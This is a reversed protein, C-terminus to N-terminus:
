IANFVVTLFLNTLLLVFLTIMIASVSKNITNITNNNGSFGIYISITFIILGNLISKLLHVIVIKISLFSSVQNLFDSIMVGASLKTLILTTLLSIVSFYISLVPIILIGALIKSTGLYVIPNIGLIELTELEGDIRMQSLGLTIAISSRIMVVCASIFPAFERLIINTYLLGYINDIGFNIKDLPLVSVIFLGTLIGLFVIMPIAQIGSYFVENIFVSRIYNKKNKLEVIISYITYPIFKFPEFVAEIYSSIIRGFNYMINNLM